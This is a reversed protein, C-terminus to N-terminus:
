AHGVGPLNAYAWWTMAGTTLKVRAGLDKYDAEDLDSKDRAPKVRPHSAHDIREQQCTRGACATCTRNARAFCRIPPNETVATKAVLHQRLERGIM